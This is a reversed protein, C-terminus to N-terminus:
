LVARKGGPGGWWSVVEPLFCLSGPLAPHELKGETKLEALQPNDWQQISKGSVREGFSPFLWYQSCVPTPHWGEPSVKQWQQPIFYDLIELSGATTVKWQPEAPLSDVRLTPSRPEIGPNPLDGPSPFPWGSWYEPRSFERPQITWPTAFLWVCSFSKWKVKWGYGKLIQLWHWQDHCRCLYSLAPVSTFVRRM